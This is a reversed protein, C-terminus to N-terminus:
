LNLKGRSAAHFNMHGGGGGQRWWTKAGEGGCVCMQYLTPLFAPFEYKGPRHSISTIGPFYQYNGPIVPFYTM